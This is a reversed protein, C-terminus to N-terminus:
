LNINTQIFPLVKNDVFIREEDTAERFEGDDDIVEGISNQFMMDVAIKGDDDISVVVVPTLIIQKM